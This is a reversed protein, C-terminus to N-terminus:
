KQRHKSEWAKRAETDAAQVKKLFEVEQRTYALEAELRRIRQETTIAKEESTKRKPARKLNVFGADRKAAQFLKAQMGRVRSEGMAATDIGYAELIAEIGNGVLLEKYVLRKFEPTFVVSRESVSEVHPSARFAAVEEPTFLKNSM